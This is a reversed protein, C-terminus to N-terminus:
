EGSVPMACRFGFRVRVSRPDDWMRKAARLNAIGDKWSGGRLVKASGELPGTPNSEPSNHYYDLNFWDATWEAANGVMDLAGYPSAGNLYTGVTTTDGIGSGFNAMSGSVEANGWPYTDGNAGRAAKEWQAETPLQRGTWECYDKAGEWHISIVPYNDFDPNGYYDPRIESSLNLPQECADAEVCRAYQANTIETEDIWFADLYVTHQPQEYNAANQDDVAAGMLFEGAPVCFQIMDDIDSVISEGPLCKKEVPVATPESTNTATSPPTLTLSTTSTTSIQFDTGQTEGPPTASATKMYASGGRTPEVTPSDKPTITISPEPETPTSTETPLSTSFKTQTPAAAAASQTPTPKPVLTNRISPILLTSALIALILAAISLLMSPRKRPKALSRTKEPPPASPRHQVHNDLDDPSHLVKELDAALAAMSQYRESPEKQLTKLIIQELHVPLDPAHIRPSPPAELMHKVVVTFPNEDEFPRRCTILEFLVVGLCYVDTRNDVPNGQGLEPAMYDPTGFGTGDRTLSTKQDSEVLKAVGFDSLMPDGTENLLINAPKVDRHIISNKHAYDLALAIPIVLRIAEEWTPTRDTLIDKFTGGTLLPMVLFPQGDQEGYDIIPVINPHILRALAKAERDFRKLFEAKRQNLTLVKIAVHRELRTDYGQYVVSMGGEGLKSIIQYRGVYQGTLDKMSNRVNKKNIVSTNYSNKNSNIGAGARPNDQSGSRTEM